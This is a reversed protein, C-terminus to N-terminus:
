KWILDKEPLDSLWQYAGTDHNLQVVFHQAGSTLVLYPVRLVQNYLTIQEMTKQTIKVEPQKCEILIYPNHDENYVVIDFRRAKEAYQIQKEVAIYSMPYKKVEVMYALITQRVEEEPTLVVFKKRIPDFIWKKCDLVKTKFFISAM